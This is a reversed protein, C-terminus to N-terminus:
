RRPVAEYASKETNWIVEIDPNNENKALNLMTDKLESELDEIANLKDNAIKEKELELDERVNMIKRSLEDKTMTESSHFEDLLDKEAQRASNKTFSMM